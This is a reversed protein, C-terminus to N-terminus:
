VCVKQSQSSTECEKKDNINMIDLITIIKENTQNIQKNFRIEDVPFTEKIEFLSYFLQNIQFWYNLKNEEIKECWM